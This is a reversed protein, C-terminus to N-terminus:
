SGVMLISSNWVVIKESTSGGFFHVGGASALSFNSGLAIGFNRMTGPLLMGCGVGVVVAVLGVGVLLGVVVTSSGM